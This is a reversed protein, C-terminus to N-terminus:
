FNGSVKGLFYQFVLNKMSIGILEFDLKLGYATFVKKYANIM